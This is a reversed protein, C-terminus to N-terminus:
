TRQAPHPALDIRDANAAFAPLRVVVRAGALSDAVAIRGGHALVIDRAIALGLGTRGDHQDRAPDLRTFRDFVRTRDAAPIGPGDDLVELEVGDPRRALTVTVRAQAFRAANELLNRLVRELQGEDGLVQAQVTSMELRPGAGAFRREAVQEAVLADLDVVRHHTPASRDLRALLLLDATLRGLRRAEELATEIVAPLDAREPHAAAVELTSLLSALPSRLEHAADDVFSRYRDTAAQLRDLTDNTAVAWRQLEDGTQPVPVRRSLDNATIDLLEVRLREVPRLVRGVVWWTLLGVLLLGAPIGALLIPDVTSLAEAAAFPWVLVYVELPVGHAWVVAGVARLLQGALACASGVCGSIANFRFTLHQIGAVTPALAPLSQGQELYARWLGSSLFQGGQNVAWETIQGPPGGISEPDLTGRKMKIIVGLNAEASQRAGDEARDAVIERTIGAGLGLVVIAIVLASAVM